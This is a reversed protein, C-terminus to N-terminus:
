NHKACIGGFSTNSHDKCNSVKTAPFDIKLNQAVLINFFQYDILHRHMSHM